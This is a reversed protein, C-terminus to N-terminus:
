IKHIKVFKGGSIRYEFGGIKLTKGEALESLKVIDEEITHVSGKTHRALDLYETNIPVDSQVGCVIVHVPIKIQSILAYDRMPAWNDAIMIVEKLKPNKKIALLIAEINNEQLDGGYGNQMCQAAKSLVSDKNTSNCYYVGGTKGTLKLVDDKRDGDNFFVFENFDKTAFTLKYWQFVQAIYPTMSGTLDAAVTMNKWKNRRFIQLISTDKVEIKNNWVDMMHALERASSEATPGPKYVIVFGHFLNKAAYESTCSTQSVIRWQILTNSFITPCILHLYEIRRNNLETLDLDKPYKTYVLDISKIVSNKLVEIEKPNTLTFDGYGCEVYIRKFEPDPIPFDKYKPVSITDIKINIRSNLSLQACVSNSWFSILIFVLTFYRM